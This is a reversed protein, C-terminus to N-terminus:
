EVIFVSHPPLYWLESADNNRYFKTKGSNLVFLLSYAQIPFLYPKKQSLSSHSETYSNKLIFDMAKHDKFVLLHNHISRRVSFIPGFSVSDSISSWNLCYKDTLSIRDDYYVTYGFAILLFYGLVM